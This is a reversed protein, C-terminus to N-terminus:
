SLYKKLESGQLKLSQPELYSKDITLKSTSTRLTIDCAFDKMTQLDNLDIKKPFLSNKILTSKDLTHYQKKKHYRYVSYYFISSSISAIGVSELTGNRDLLLFYNIGLLIGGAIISYRSSNLNQKIKNHHYQFVM